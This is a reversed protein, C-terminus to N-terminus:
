WTRRNYRVSYIYEWVKKMKQYVWLELKETGFM